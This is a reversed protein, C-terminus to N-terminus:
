PDTIAADGVTNKGPDEVAGNCDSSGKSFRPATRSNEARRSLGEVKRPEGSREDSSSVMKKGVIGAAEGKAAGQRGGSSPTMREGFAFGVVFLCFIRVTGQKSQPV